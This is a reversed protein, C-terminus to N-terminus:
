DLGLFVRQIKNIDGLNIMNDQNADAGPTAPDWGLYVRQVKIVDGIDIIGDGNADGIMWTIQLNINEEVISYYSDTISVTVPIENVLNVYNQSTVPTGTLTGERTLILGEPLGSAKWTYPPNGGSAKLNVALPKGLTCQILKPSIFNVPYDVKVSKGVWPASTSIINGLSNFLSDVFKPTNVFIINSTNGVLGVVNFHIEALYGSGTAGPYSSTGGLVRIVGNNKQPPNFSWGSVKIPTTGILGQTIGSESGEEGMIQIVKTNYSLQFQYAKLDRVQDITVKIVFSGGIPVNAPANISVLSFNSVSEIPVQFFMLVLCITMVISIVAWIRYIKM